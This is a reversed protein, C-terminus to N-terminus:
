RALRESRRREVWTRVSSTGAWLVALWVGTEIASVAHEGALRYAFLLPVACFAVVLEIAYRGERVAGLESKGKM